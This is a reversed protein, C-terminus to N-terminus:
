KLSLSRILDLINDSVKPTSEDPIYVIFPYGIVTSETIIEVNQSLKILFMIKATNNNIAITCPGISTTYRYMNWVVM